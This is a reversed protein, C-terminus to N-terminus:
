GMAAKVYVDFRNAKSSLQMSPKQENLFGAYGPRKVVVRKIAANLALPLLKDADDDSGVLSQFVRMEKKIQASKKRHPFMPDLYVVEHSATLQELQQLSNHHQLHLRESVWQGIDIDQCARILGDDLLAAVVPSREFMTVTCGLSALVFADRGLGATADLVTPTAGSKLGVAKAIQQGRGGGFKRRHAVAGEVFDVYVAGLKPEDLKVLQLRQETLQLQFLDDAGSVIPLQWREALLQAKAQLSENDAVIAARLYSM